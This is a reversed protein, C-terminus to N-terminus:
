VDSDDTELSEEIALSAMVAQIRAVVDANPLTNSDKLKPDNSDVKGSSEEKKDGEAQKDKARKSVKKVKEAIASAAPTDTVPAVPAQAAAAAAEAKSTMEVERQREKEAEAAKRAAEKQIWAPMDKMAAEPDKKYLLLMGQLEAITFQEDKIPAAWVKAWEAIKAQTVHPSLESPHHSGAKGRTVKRVAKSTKAADQLPPLEKEPTAPSSTESSSATEGPEDLEELGTEDVSTPQYFIKFLEEAQARTARKYHIYMDVRGPRTLAADLEDLEM